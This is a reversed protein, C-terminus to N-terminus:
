EQAPQQAEFDEAEKQPEAMIAELYDVLAERWQSFAAPIKLDDKAALDRLWEVQAKPVRVADASEDMLELWAAWIKGGKRDIGQSHAANVVATMALKTAWATLSDTVAGTETLQRYVGKDPALVVCGPMSFDFTVIQAANLLKRRAEGM